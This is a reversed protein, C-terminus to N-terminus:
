DLWNEVRLNPVQRFDVLNRSLLTADYALAISAIRLDMTGIRVHHVSKLDRFVAAAGSNWPLINWGEFDELADQFRMYADELRHGDQHRRIEQLWGRMSEEAVVVTIFTAEDTEALRSRLREGCRSGLEIESYHNTDLILM